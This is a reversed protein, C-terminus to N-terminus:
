HIMYQRIWQDVGLMSAGEVISWTKWRKDWPDEHGEVLAALLRGVGWVHYNSVLFVDDSRASWKEQMELLTSEKCFRPYKIGKIRNFPLDAISAIPGSRAMFRLFMKGVARGAALRGTSRVAHTGCLFLDKAPPRRPDSSAGEDSGTQRSPRDDNDDDDDDVAGPLISAM